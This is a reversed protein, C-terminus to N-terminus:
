KLFMIFKCMEGGNSIRLIVLSLNLWVKLFLSILKLDDFVVM